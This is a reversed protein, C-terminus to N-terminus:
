YVRVLIIRNDDVDHGVGTGFQSYRTGAYEALARTTMDADFTGFVTFQNAYNWDYENTVPNTGPVFRKVPQNGSVIVPERFPYFGIGHLLYGTAPVPVCYGAVCVQSDYHIRGVHTAYSGIRVNVPGSSANNVTFRTVQVSDGPRQVRRCEVGDLRRLPGRGRAGRPCWAGRSVEGSKEQDNFRCREAGAHWRVARADILRFASNSTMGMLPKASECDATRSIRAVAVSGRGHEVLEGGAGSLRWSRIEAAAGTM